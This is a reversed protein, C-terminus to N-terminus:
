LEDKNNLKHCYWAMSLFGSYGRNCMGPPISALPNDYLDITTLRVLALDAPLHAVRNFPMRLVRLSQPLGLPLSELANRSVDLEELASLEGLWAPLSTLGLSWVRLTRLSRVGRLWDPLTHTAGFLAPNRGIDFFSLQLTGLSAPLADLACSALELVHLDPLAAALESPVERIRRNESLIVDTLTPVALLERPFAPLDNDRLDVRRLHRLGALAGSDFSAIRNSGLDLVRLNHLRAIGAPVARLANGAMHVQDIHGARLVAEPVSDFKNYSLDVSTIHTLAGYLADPLAALANHSLALTTLITMDAISPPLSEILNHWLMLEELQALQSLCAPVRTLQNHAASLHFLRSLACVSEPLEAFSNNYLNLEALVQLKVISPPLTKLKNDYLVLTKLRTLDGLWAPLSSLGNHALNLEELQKLESMDDPLAVIHNNWLSLKKLGTLRGLGVVDAVDLKNSSLDLSTIHSLEWLEAPINQMFCDRLNVENTEWKKAKISEIKRGCASSTIVPAELGDALGGHALTLAAVLCALLVCAARAKM